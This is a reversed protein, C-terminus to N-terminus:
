QIAQRFGTEKQDKKLLVSEVIYLSVKQQSSRFKANRDANQAFLKTCREPAETSIPGETLVAVAVAEEITLAGTEIM